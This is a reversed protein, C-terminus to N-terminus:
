SRTSGPWDGACLLFQLLVFDIDFNPDWVHTGLLLFKIVLTFGNQARVDPGDSGPPGGVGQSPPDQVPSGGEVM